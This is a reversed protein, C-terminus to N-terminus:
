PDLSLAHGTGCGASGTWLSVPQGQVFGAHFCPQQPAQCPAAHFCPQQSPQSPAAHFCPQQSPQSPAAAPQATAPKAPPGPRLHAPPAKHAPPQPGRGRLEELINVMQGSSMRGRRVLNIVSEFEARDDADMSSAVIEAMRIVDSEPVGMAFKRAVAGRLLIM